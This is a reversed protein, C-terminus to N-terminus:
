VGAGCVALGLSLIRMGFSGHNSGCELRIAPPQRCRIEHGLGPLCCPVGLWPFLRLMLAHGPASPWIPRVGLGARGADVAADWAQTM